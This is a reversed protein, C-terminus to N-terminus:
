GTKYTPKLILLQGAGDFILAGASAPIAPVAPRGPTAPIATLEADTVGPDNGTPWWM